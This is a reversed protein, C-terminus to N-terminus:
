GNTVTGAKVVKRIQKHIYYNMLFQYMSFLTIITIIIVVIGLLADHLNM